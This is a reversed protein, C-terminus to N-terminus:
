GGCRWVCMRIDWVEGTHWARHFTLGEGESEKEVFLIEWGIFVSMLGKGKERFGFM